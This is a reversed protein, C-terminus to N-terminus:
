GLSRLYAAIEQVTQEISSHTNDIRCEFKEAHSGLWDNYQVQSAIFEASGCMREPPRALLRAAIQEDSCTMVMFHVETICSPVSEMQRYNDPNICAPFLLNKGNAMCVARAM